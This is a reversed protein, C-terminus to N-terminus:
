GLPSLEIATPPTDLIVSARGAGLIGYTELIQVGSRTDSRALDIFTACSTDAQSVRLMAALQRQQMPAAPNDISALDIAIKEAQTFRNRFALVTIKMNSTATNSAIWQDLTAKAPLPSGADWVIDEYVDGDGPAHCQVDPFGQSIAQMYTLAM